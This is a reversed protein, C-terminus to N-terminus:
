RIQEAPATRGYLAKETRYARREMRLAEARARALAEPGLRVIRVLKLVEHDTDKAGLWGVRINGDGRAYYKLQSAGPEDQNFERTVLVNAYCRYPVCTRLGTRYVEARDNWSVPPPAFGQAYSPAGLRPRAKMEIGATAGDLGALWAATKVVKGNEYEEPYEGTHWVNGADDQAFFALEAEVLEGDTYDRDWIVLSRVGGVVKVLDTVTFVQRKAGDNSSGAFVLETGPRYPLWANDIRESRGFDRPDFDKATIEGAPAESASRAHVAGPSREAALLEMVGTAAVRTGTPPGSELLARDGDVRAVAISRREYSRVKSNVYAWTAGTASYLVASYPIVLYKGNRQVRATRVGLRRSEEASLTIRTTHTGPVRELVIQTTPGGGASTGGCAAAVTLLLAAAAFLWLRTRRHRPTTM